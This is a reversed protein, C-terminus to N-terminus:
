AAHVLRDHRRVAWVRTAGAGVVVIGGASGLIIATWNTGGDLTVSTTSSSGDHGYGPPDPVAAGAPSGFALVAIGSITAGSALRALTSINM